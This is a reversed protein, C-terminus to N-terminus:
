PADYNQYTPDIIDSHLNTIYNMLDKGDVVYWQRDDGHLPSHTGNMYWFEGDYDLRYGEPAKTEKINYTGYPLRENGETTQGNYEIPETSAVARVGTRNPYTALIVADNTVAVVRVTMVDGGNNPKWNNEDAVAPDVTNTVPNYPTLGKLPGVYVEHESHNTITFEAGILTADGEGTNINLDDKAAVFREDWDVKLLKLGYYKPQNLYVHDVVHVQDDHITVVSVHLGDKVAHKLTFDRAPITETVEQGAANKHKYTRAEMHYVYDEAPELHGESPEYEYVLYTGYDLRNAGTRAWWQGNDELKTQMTLVIEGPQYRRNANDDLLVFSKSANVIAFTSDLKMDGNLRDGTYYDSKRVDIGGKKVENKWPMTVIKRGDTHIVVNEVKSDNNYGGTMPDVEYVDYTGYDLANDPTEAWWEGNSKKVATIRAVEGNRPVRNGTGNYSVYSKSRNVIAFTADQATDGREDDDTKTNHKHVSIAGRIIEDKSEIHWSTNGNEAMNSNVHWYFKNPYTTSTADGIKYGEPPNIEEVRYTGLLYVRNGNADHYTSYSSFTHNYMQGTDPNFVSITNSNGEAGVVSASTFNIYGQVGSGNSTTVFHWVRDGRGDNIGATDVNALNVNDGFYRIRYVAGNLSTDGVIEKDYRGTKSLDLVVTWPDDVATLVVPDNQTDSSKVEVKYTKNRYKYGKGLTSAQVERVYYTNPLMEVLSTSNGNADLTILANDTQNAQKAPTTAGSDTYFQYQIGNLTYMNNGRLISNAIVTGGGDSGDQGVPVDRAYAFRATTLMFTSLVVACMLVASLVIGPARSLFHRVHSM